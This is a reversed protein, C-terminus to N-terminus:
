RPLLTRLIFVSASTENFSVFFLVFLRGAKTRLPLASLTMNLKRRFPSM